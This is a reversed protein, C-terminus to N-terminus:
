QKGLNGTLSLIEFTYTLQTKNKEYCQLADWLSNFKTPKLSNKVDRCFAIVGHDKWENNSTSLEIFPYSEGNSLLSIRFGDLIDKLLRFNSESDRYLDPYLGDKHISEINQELTTVQKLFAVRIQDASEDPISLENQLAKVMQLSQAMSKRSDETNKKLFLKHASQFNEIAELSKVLVSPANYYNKTSPKM